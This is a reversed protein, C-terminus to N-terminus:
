WGRGSAGRPTTDERMGGTRKRPKVPPCPQDPLPFPKEEGHENLLLPMWDPHQVLENMVPGNRLRRVNEDLGQVRAPTVEAIKRSNLGPLCKRVDVGNFKAVFEDCAETTRFNIFGYGVNCKNKFDIPLYVFDFRGRFDQNLQKVLMERTYKNPINRLMVTTNGSSTQQAARTPSPREDTGSSSQHDGSAQGESTSADEPPSYERQQRRANRTEHSDKRGAKGKVRWSRGGEADPGWGQMDGGVDKSPSHEQQSQPDQVLPAEAAAAGSNDEMSAWLQCAQAEEAGDGPSCAEVPVGEGWAQGDAPDEFMGGQELAMGGDAADWGQPSMGDGGLACAEDMDMHMTGAEANWSGDQMMEMIAGQQEMSVGGEAHWAEAFEQGEMLMAQEAAWHQGDSAGDGSYNVGQNEMMVEMQLEGTQMGSCGIDGEGDANPTTRLVDLPMPWGCMAYSGTTPDFMMTPMFNGSMDQGDFAPPLCMDFGDACEGFAPPLVMDGFGMGSLGLQNLVSSNVVAPHLFPSPTNPVFKCAPSALKGADGLSVDCGPQSMAELYPSTGRAGTADSIKLRGGSTDSDEEAAQPGIEVYTNKVRYSLSETVRGM